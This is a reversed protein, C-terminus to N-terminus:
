VYSETHKEDNHKLAGNSLWNFRLPSNKFERNRRLRATINSIHIKASNSQTENTFSSLKTSTYHNTVQSYEAILKVELVPKSINAKYISNRLEKRWSIRHPILNNDNDFIHINQSKHESSLLECKLKNIPINYKFVFDRFETWQNEISLYLTLPDTIPGDFRLIHSLRKKPIKIQKNFPDIGRIMRFLDLAYKQNNTELLQRLQLISLKRLLGSDYMSKQILVREIKRPIGFIKLPVQSILSKLLPQSTVRPKDASMLCSLRAIMPDSAAGIFCKVKYKFEIDEQIRHLQKILIKEDLTSIKIGFFGKERQDFPGVTSKIYKSISQLIENAQLVERKSLCIVDRHNQPNWCEGYRIGNLIAARNMFTIRRNRFGGIGVLSTNNKLIFNDSHSKVFRRFSKINNGKLNFQKSIDIFIFVNMNIEECLLNHSM